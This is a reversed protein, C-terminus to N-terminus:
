TKDSTIEFLKPSHHKIQLDNGTVKRVIALKKAIVAKDFGPFLARIERFTRKRVPSVPHLLVRKASEIAFARLEAARVTADPVDTHKGSRVHAEAKELVDLMRPFSERGDFNYFIRSAREPIDVPLARDAKKELAELVTSMAEAESFVTKGVVNPLYIAGMEDREPAYNVVPRGYLHAELGSTSGDHIVVRSALISTGVPGERTVHINPIDAFVAHYYSEDDSPHPRFVFNVDPRKISLKHVLEVFRPLGRAIRGWMAVFQERLVPDKADYGLAKHFTGRMGLPTNAIAFNSNILVFDGFKARLRAVDEAYIDAYKPLCLDFRPHGVTVINPSCPANKSRYFETQFDGWTAVHDEPALWKPDLVRLLETEWAPERGAFVAGEEAHHVVVHGRDKQAHYIMKGNPLWFFNTKGLFVGRSTSEAVRDVAPAHGIFIRRHRRAFYGALFLRYDIERVITEVPFLIDVRDSM